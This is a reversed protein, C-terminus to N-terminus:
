RRVAYTLLVNDSGPFRRASQLRLDAPGTFMPTGAGLAAPGVMLHFEDVLAQALLGHWTTRSGLQPHRRRRAGAGEGIPETVPEGLDDTPSRAPERDWSLVRKPRKSMLRLCCNTAIRYPWTRLSSRQEFGGLGRWAALTTEQLAEDADDLSGLLRYCHAPPENRHEAVLREFAQEDGEQAETLTSM